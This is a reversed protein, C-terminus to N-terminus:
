IQITKEGFQVKRLKTVDQMNVVEDYNLIGDANASIEAIESPRLSSKPNSIIQDPLSSEYPTKESESFGPITIKTSSSPELDLSGVDALDPIRRRISDVPASILDRPIIIFGPDRTFPIVLIGFTSGIAVPGQGLVLIPLPIGLAAISIIKRVLQHWGSVGIFDPVPFPLAPLELGYIEVLHCLVTKTISIVGNKGKSKL